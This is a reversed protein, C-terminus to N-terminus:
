ARLDEFTMNDSPKNIPQKEEEEDVLDGLGLDNLFDADLGYV